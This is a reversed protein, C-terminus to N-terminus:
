AKSVMLASLAHWEDKSSMGCEQCFEERALLAAAATELERIRLAQAVAKSELDNVDSAHYFEEDGAQRGPPLEPHVHIWDVTYKQMVVKEALVQDSTAM